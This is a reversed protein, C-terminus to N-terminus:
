SLAHLGSLSLAGNGSYILFSIIQIVFKDQHTEFPNGYIFVSLIVTPTSEAKNVFICTPDFVFGDFPENHTTTPM